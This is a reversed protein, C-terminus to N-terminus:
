SPHFACTERVLNAAGRGCSQLHYQWRAGAPQRWNHSEAASLPVERQTSLMTALDGLWSKSAELLRFCPLQCSAAWSGCALRAAATRFVALMARFISKGTQRFLARCQPLRPLVPTTKGAAASADRRVAQLSTWASGFKMISDKCRVRLVEAAAGPVREQEQIIVGAGQVFRPVAGARRAQVSYRCNETFNHFIGTRNHERTAEAMM